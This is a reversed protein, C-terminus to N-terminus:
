LLSRDIGKIFDKWIGLLFCDLVGGGSLIYIIEDEHNMFYHYAKYPLNQSDEIEYVSTMKNRDIFTLKGNNVETM